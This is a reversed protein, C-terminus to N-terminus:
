VNEFSGGSEPDDQRKPQKRQDSVCLILLQAFWTGKRNLETVPTRNDTIKHDVTERSFLLLV